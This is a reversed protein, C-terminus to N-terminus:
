KKPLPKQLAKEIAKLIDARAMASFKAAAQSMAKALNGPGKGTMPAQVKYERQLLLGAIPGAQKTDLLTLTAKLSAQGTGSTLDELFEEVGGELVFRPRQFQRNSFVAILANQARLDRLLADGVLDAPSALWRNYHYLGRENPAPRYIMDSGLYAPVAQFRKVKLEASLTQAGAPPPPYELTWKKILVPPKTSPLGCGGALLLAAALTLVAAWIPLSRKNVRM